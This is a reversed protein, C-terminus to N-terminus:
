DPYDLSGATAVLDATADGGPDVAFFLPPLEVINGTRYSAKACSVRDAVASAYTSHGHLYIEQSTGGEQIVGYSKRGHEQLLNEIEKALKRGRDSGQSLEKHAEKLLSKLTRM